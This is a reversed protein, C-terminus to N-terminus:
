RCQDQSKKAFDGKELAGDVLFKLNEVVFLALDTDIIV